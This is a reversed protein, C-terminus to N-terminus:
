KETGPVFGYEIQELDADQLASQYAEESPFNKQDVRRGFIKLSFNPECFPYPNIFITNETEDVKYRVTLMNKPNSAPVDPIEGSNFTDLGTCIALLLLDCIRLIRYNLQKQSALVAPGYVPHDKLKSIIEEQTQIQTELFSEALQKQDNLDAGRASRSRYITATHMSVLLASYLNYLSVQQVAREWILKTEMLTTEIFNVPRGDPHLRPASDWEVWGIDHLSTAIVVEEKPSPTYLEPNDWAAALQGAAWAHAPQTIFFWGKETPRCIM